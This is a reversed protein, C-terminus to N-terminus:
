VAFRDQAVAPRLALAAELAAAQPAPIQDLLMLAPRILELLSGFPIQAESEVGRVRLVRLGEAQEAAYSLLATKGIGPEGTLALTTSVGSRARVLAREIEGREHARGLLM